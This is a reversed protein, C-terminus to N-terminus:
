VMLFGSFFLAVTRIYISHALPVFEWCSEIDKFSLQTQIFPFNERNKGQHSRSDRGRVSLSNNSWRATNCVTMATWFCYDHLKWRDRACVNDCKSGFITAFTSYKFVAITPRTVSTICFESTYLFTNEYEMQYVM